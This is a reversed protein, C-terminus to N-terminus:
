NDSISRVLEPTMVIEANKQLLARLENQPEPLEYHLVPYVLVISKPAGGAGDRLRKGLTAALAAGASAGGLHIREPDIGLEIAHEAVWMRLDLVDDNPIPYHVGDLCARYDGSVVTFGDAAISRAVWDAEPMELDGAIFGGGHLWV